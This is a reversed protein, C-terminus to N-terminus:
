LTAIGDQTYLYVIAEDSGNFALYDYDNACQHCLPMDERITVADLLLASHKCRECHLTNAM